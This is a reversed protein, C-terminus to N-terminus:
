IRRIGVGAVTVKINEKAASKNLFAIIEQEYQSVGYSVIEDKENQPLVDLMARIVDYSKDGLKDLVSFIKSLKEDTGFWATIQPYATSILATYDIEDFTLCIELNGSKKVANIKKATLLLKNKVLLSNMNKLIQKEYNQVIGVALEDKKNQSLIKLSAAAAKAAIDGFKSLVANNNNNNNEIILPIVTDAINNYDAESVLIVAQLM